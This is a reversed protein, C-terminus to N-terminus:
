PWIAFGASLGFSTIDDEVGGLELDLAHEVALAIDIAVLNIVFVEMGLRANVVPVTDSDDIGGFDFDFRGLGAGIGAYPRRISHSDFYYRLGAGAVLITTDADPGGGPPEESELSASLVGEVLLNETGFRGGSVGAAVRETDGFDGGDEFEILANSTGAWHWDGAAIARPTPTTACASGLLLLAFSMIPISRCTPM